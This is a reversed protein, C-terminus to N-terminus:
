ESEEGEEKVKEEANEEVYSECGEIFSNSNGTCDDPTEISNREAWEYGADHGSCNGACAGGFRLPPSPYSYTFPQPSPANLAPFSSNERTVAPSDTFVVPQRKPERNLEVLFSFVIIVSVAILFGKM